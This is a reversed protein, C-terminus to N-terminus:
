EKMKIEERLLDMKLKKLVVDFYNYMELDLQVARLVNIEVISNKSDGNLDPFSSQKALIKTM